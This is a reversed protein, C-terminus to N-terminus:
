FPFKKCINAPAKGKAKSIPPKFIKFDIIDIASYCESYLSNSNNNLNDKLLLAPYKLNCKNM